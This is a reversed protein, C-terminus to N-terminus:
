SSTDGNLNKRQICATLRGLLDPIPRTVNSKEVTKLIVECNMKKDKIYRELNKVLKKEAENSKGFKDHSHLIDHVKCFFADKCGAEQLPQVDEVFYDKALSQNYKVALDIIHNLNLDHAPATVPSGDLLAAVSVLLFVTM